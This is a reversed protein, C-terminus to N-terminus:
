FLVAFLLAGGIVVFVALMILFLKYDYKDDYKDDDYKDDYKMSRDEFGLPASWVRWFSAKVGFRWV